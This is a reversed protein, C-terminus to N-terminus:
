REACRRTSPSASITTPPSTSAARCALRAIGSGPKLRAIERALRQM